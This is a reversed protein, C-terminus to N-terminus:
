QDGNDTVMMVLTLKIIRAAADDDNLMKITDALALLEEQRLKCREAWEKEKVACNKELDAVFKKDEVLSEETDVLENKM